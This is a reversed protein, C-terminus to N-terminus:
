KEHKEKFLQCDIGSSVYMVQSPMPRSKFGVARCGYPFDQEYTIYFHSCSFCNVETEQKNQNKGSPPESNMEAKLITIIRHPGSVKHRNLCLCNSKDNIM